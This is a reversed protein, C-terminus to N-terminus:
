ADASHPEAALLVAIDCHVGDPTFQLRTEADLQYPLAREILQRGYGYSALPEGPLSVNGERWLLVLRLSGNDQGADVSWTVKLRGAPQALAGYKLANTALEHLALAITQAAMFGLPVTPGSVTTRGKGAGIASLELHVIEGLDIHEGVARSLLGQVRGLATLRDSFADLSGGRSLTQEAISQVIALLNRTRHQLEAILVRQREEMRRRETVDRQVAVWHRVQGADGRLATILWEVIYESGDQRYNVAEGKAPGGAELDARVQDLVARDTEPGQLFRPSCGVAQDAAYGTMATFAANVYEIVPGPPDLAPSTVVVVDAVTEIVAKLLTFDPVAAGVVGQPGGQDGM